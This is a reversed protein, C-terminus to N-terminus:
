SRMLRKGARELQRRRTGLRRCCSSPKRRSGAGAMERPQAMQERAAHLDNITGDPIGFCCESCEFLVRFLRALAEEVEFAEENDAIMEAVRELSAAAAQLVDDYCEVTNVNCRGRVDAVRITAGVLSARTRKGASDEGILVDDASMHWIPCGRDKLLGLDESEEPSALVVM